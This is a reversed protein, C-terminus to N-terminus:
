SVEDLARRGDIRLSVCDFRLVPAAKSADDLTEPFRPPRTHLGTRNVTAVMMTTLRRYRHYYPAIWFPTRGLM